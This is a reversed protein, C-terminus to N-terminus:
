AAQLIQEQETIWPSSANLIKSIVLAESNNEWFNYICSRIVFTVIKRIGREIVYKFGFM